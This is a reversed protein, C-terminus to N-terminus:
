FMYGLFDVQHYDVCSEVVGKIMLESEINETLLGISIQKEDDIGLWRCEANLFRYGHNTYLAPNEALLLISDVNAKQADKEMAKLLMGAMGNGRYDQSVCLNVVGYIRKPVGDFNMIRHDIGLQAIPRGDAELVYRFHPLQKFYTINEFKDTFCEQLLKALQRRLLDNVRDEAFRKIM